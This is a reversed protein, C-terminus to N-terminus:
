QPFRFGDLYMQQANFYPYEGKGYLMLVSLVNGDCWAKVAYSLGDADEWYDIVGVAKPASELTHGWGYGAAETVSFQDQLFDLYATMLDNKEDANDNLPEKLRVVIVAFSFDGHGVEATYVESEDESLTMSFEGPDAPLYVACGTQAVDYKKFRPVSQSWAM